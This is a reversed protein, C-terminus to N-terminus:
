CPTHFLDSRHLEEKKQMKKKKKNEYKEKTTTLSNCNILTLTSAHIQEIVEFDCSNRSHYSIKLELTCM